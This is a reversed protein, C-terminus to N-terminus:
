ELDPALEARQEASLTQEARYHPHDIILRADQPFTKAQQPTLQFKLYQVASLREPSMQRDDFRALVRQGQVELWVHRELGVLERLRVDREAPTEYEILLTASLEGRAPILENYVAVENAIEEPRVLREARMMEQIQYVITQHNEFLFTVHDGVHIRRRDKLAMVQRRWEPRVLEYEAINKIESTTVPQM